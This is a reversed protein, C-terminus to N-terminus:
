GLRVARQTPAREVVMPEGRNGLRVTNGLRLDAHPPHELPTRHNSCPGAAVGGGCWLVGALVDADKRKFERCGFHRREVGKRILVTAQLM